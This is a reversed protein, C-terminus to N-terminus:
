LRHLYVPAKKETLKKRLLREAFDKKELYCGVSDLFNDVLLETVIQLQDAMVGMKELSKEYTVCGNFDVSFQQLDDPLSNNNFPITAVAQIKVRHFNGFYRNSQDFFKVVVGHSLEIVNFPKM